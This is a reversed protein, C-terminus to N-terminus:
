DDDVELLQKAELADELGRVYNARAVLEVGLDELTATELIPVTRIDLEDKILEKVKDRHLRTVPHSYWEAIMEETIVM